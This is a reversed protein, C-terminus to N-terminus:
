ALAIKAGSFLAPDLLTGTGPSIPGSHTRLTVRYPGQGHREMHEIADHSGPETLLIWQKGLVLIVGLVSEDLPSRVVQAGVGLIAAYEKASMELNRVLVTMGAVGIAGNPHTVQDPEGPVRLSRPTTDEIMFPWGNEGVAGPPTSLKWALRTGDPTEREMAFPEPYDIGRARVAAIESALDKGLLCFDVLGGGQRLRNFWRHEAAQGQPTPAILEIYTGDPFSILANHTNGDGHTGGPVVTFGAKRANDIATDLDDSIIVIHDVSSPM